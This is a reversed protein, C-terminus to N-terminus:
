LVMGYLKGESKHHRHLSFVHYLYSFGGAGLNSLGNFMGFQFVAEM